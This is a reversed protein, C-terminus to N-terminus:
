AGPLRRALCALGLLGSALLVFSGPEPIVTTPARFIAILGTTNTQGEVTSFTASPMTSGGLQFGLLELTYTEGGVNFTSSTALNTFTVKDNSAPGGVNPTEDHLFSFTYPGGTLSTGNFKLDATINLQASKLTTGTIPFNFHTFDGLKFNTGTAVSFSPPASSDFRYGSKGGGGAPTGWRMEENGVLGDTNIYTIGVGPGATSVANTWDARVVDVTITVAHAGAGFGLVFLAATLLITKKRM